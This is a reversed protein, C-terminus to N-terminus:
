PFLGGSGFFTGTNGAAWGFAALVFASGSLTAIIEVVSPKALLLAIGAALIAITGFLAVNGSVMNKVSTMAGFGGGGISGLGAGGALVPSAWVICLLLALLAIQFRTPNM